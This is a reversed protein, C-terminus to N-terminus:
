ATSNMLALMLSSPVLADISSLLRQQFQLFGASGKMSHFLRFIANITELSNDAQGAGPKGVVLKAAKSGFVNCTSTVELVDGAKLNMRDLLEKPLIVGASNGITTIKLKM